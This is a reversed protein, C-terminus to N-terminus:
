KRTVPSENPDDAELLYREGAQASFIRTTSEQRLNLIKNDGIRRLTYENESPLQLRLEGSRGSEIEAQQLERERWQMDITIDGRARLGTVSGSAWAEPVAPLLQIDKGHSQLLMEAVGATAGFNGDIQFPPHTSWLNPLTSDKLQAALIRHARDGNRLRAWLAIKWARSWGTGADGRAKLSTRAADLLDPTQADIRDDPFLAYLQSVHRHRSEPEDLDAKWEQLQGWRGIRLGPDLNELTRNLEAVFATDGLLSAADRTNRLLQSVLQQSMAAGMTFDGHEPSYSPSVALQGDRPDKVLADLWLQAAGKMVPYARERLFQEDNNFRYHQYFHDALWAGAEPQWFATPWDIVGSFGWINTNLFLTWGRSGLLRQAAVSGPQQLSEVFDFLPATTESLNTVEAPWYNMQLNINAHYDANWPPTASNNWVGQLNAPLSGARSSAILLYRGFQFYLAELARDATQNGTGYNELWQDIPPNKRRAQPGNRLQRRPAGLEARGLNLDVRNFLSQYDATHDARLAAYGKETASDLRAQVAKHPNRGRYEPYDAAYDTGAALLLSASDAGTIRLGGNKGATIRGGDTVIQLQTEYQLGNDKLAGRVAIRGDRVAIDASRNDPIELKASFTISGEKDADLHVAIVGDPYSALYERTYRIGDASYSVQATADALDLERRYGSVQELRPFELQLTGFSQYNGYGTIERGLTEAVQEPALRGEERLTEQVQALARTRPKEPLGFDYGQQSGPGGTWLTKENFQLHDVAIGGQVAAGMAGNGIPLSEKEWDQAPKDFHLTLPTEAVAIAPACVAAWLLLRALNHRPAACLAARNDTRTM